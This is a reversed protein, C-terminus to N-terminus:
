PLAQESLRVFPVRRDRDRRLVDTALVSLTGHATADWTLQQARARAADGLRQRRAPNSLIDDLAAELDTVTSALYGTLGDIVADSHGDIRTAVAPTGCAAAETITMGWGEHSSTSALVWASRCLDVIEEDSLRGPLEVWDHADAEAVMAQLEPRLHGEGAIVARLQPHRRKLRFLVQLLVGFHKQPVLRGIAAVLPVESRTGGPSFRSDVGPEIVTVSDDPIRLQEVITLKSSASLTVIPTSRYVPPALRRELLSGLRALQPPLAMDWMQGHVHHLFVCRPGQAWVPSFFPMGNWIEVLGDRQGRALAERSASRAFVRYRGAERILRVGDRELRSARGPVASTRMTVEIGAAAWRRAVEAAHIESGGAEPDDLDRWALLHVRRLGVAAAIDGLKETQSIM